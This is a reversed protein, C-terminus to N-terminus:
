MGQARLVQRTHGDADIRGAVFDILRTVAQRDPTWGEIMNNVLANHVRRQDIATLGSQALLEVIDVLEGDAAEGTM